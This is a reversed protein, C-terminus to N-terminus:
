VVGASIAAVKPFREAFEPPVPREELMDALAPLRDVHDRIHQHHEHGAAPLSM